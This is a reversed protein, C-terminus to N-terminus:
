AADSVEQNSSPPVPAFPSLCIIAGTIPLVSYVLAYSIGLVASTQGLQATKYVVIAGGILLLAGFLVVTAESIEFLREKMTPSAKEALTEFSLHKRLLFGLASGLLGLWMLLLRSLEETVTSPNKLVYRSIVQWTLAGLLVVMLGMTIWSLIGTLKRVLSAV